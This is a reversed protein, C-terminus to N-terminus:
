HSKIKTRLERVSLNNKECISVYYKIKDKNDIQLIEAYHSWMLQTSLTSVKQNKFVNYFQKFRFLTRYSYKKGLEKTLKNAYEKIIGEGYHKGAESLLKGVKYYTELDSRNKSCDKVAKYVENNILSEKIENYYNM